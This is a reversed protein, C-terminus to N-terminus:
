VKLWETIGLLLFIFKVKTTGEANIIKFPHWGPDKLNEQWLSCLTTAQLSPDELSREKCANHFAKQDIEGMRKVGILTRSGLM